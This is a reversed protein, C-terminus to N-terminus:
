DIGPGKTPKKMSSIVSREALQKISVAESRITTKSGCNHKVRSEALRKKLHWLGGM